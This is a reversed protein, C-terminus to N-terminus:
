SNMDCKKTLFGITNKCKPLPDPDMLSARKHVNNNYIESPWTSNSASLWDQSLLIHTRELKNAAAHPGFFQHDTGGKNYCIFIPKAIGTWGKKPGHISKTQRMVKRQIKVALAMFVQRSNIACNDCIPDVVQKLLSLDWLAVSIRVSNPGHIGLEGSNTEWIEIKDTNDQVGMTIKLSKKKKKKTLSTSSIEQIPNYNFQYNLLLFHNM